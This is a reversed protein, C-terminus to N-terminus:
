KQKGKLNYCLQIRDKRHDDNKNVKWGLFYNLGLEIAKINGNDIAKILARVVNFRTEVMYM